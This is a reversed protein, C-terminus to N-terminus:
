DNVLVLDITQGFLSVSLNIVQWDGNRNVDILNVNGPNAWMNNVRVFQMANDGNPLTASVTLEDYPVTANVGDLRTWIRITGAQALSANPRSPSGGQGNNFMDLGFAPVPEVGFWDNILLVSVTQGYGSMTFYITEWPADKSVDFNLYYNQWGDNTWQRNRTILPLANNSDQDTATITLRMSVPTSEGSPMVLPWIRINGAMSPVEADTGNNFAHIGLYAVRQPLWVIGTAFPRNAVDSARNLFNNTVDLTTLMPNGSLDLATLYNWNVWLSELIPNGSVDLESLNNSGLDLWRLAPNNTVDIATLENNWARFEGLRYNNTLDIETINSGNVNVWRIIPSGSLNLEEILNGFAWVEDLTPHEDLILETMQNNVINVWRIWRNNSLDLSGINNSGVRVEEIILNSSLDLETLNSGYLNLWRLYPSNSVDIASVQNGPAWIENLFVNNSLDLSGGMNNNTFNLTHLATFHEIGALNTIGLNQVWLGVVRSVDDYFIRQPYPRGVRTRVANRFNLCVFDYTIDIPAAEGDLLAAFPMTIRRDGNLFLLNGQYIGNPTGYAFTMQVDFTNASTPAVALNVGAYNVNNFHVEPTWTGTGPNNITVTMTDTAAESVVGFSLSSMTHEEFQSITPFFTRNIPHVTTAYADSRLAMIPDVFGAGVSFVNNTHVSTEIDALPRATNMLRAKVEANRQGQPIDPFAQLVLAAIGAVSPAAMSTGSMAVYTNGPFASVIGVGPATIDPNIFYTTPVPGHSSFLSITDGFRPEDLGGATGAAVIIPLSGQGMVSLTYPRRNRGFNGAIVVVVTDDLAALDLATNIIHPGAAHATEWHISLNMIDSSEHAMEIARVLRDSWTGGGAAGLARYSRLNIEPALAVVTGAVHTGHGFDTEGPRERADNNNRIVCFGPTLGTYPDYWREFVPHDHQIGSDIVAVTVGYGTIGMENHIYYANFHALTERMFGEYIDGGGFGIVPEGFPIMEPAEIRFNPFVGFVEPLEAILEAMYAPARMFVGNFLQYNYSFVYPAFSGFPMPIRALQSMFTNHAALAQGEFYATDMQNFTRLHASDRESALRLAVAPPTVFQVIIEIIEDSDTIAYDGEFGLVGVSGGLTQTLATHELAAVRALHREYAERESRGYDHDYAENDRAYITDMATEGYVIISPPAIPFAMVLAIFIAILSRTNFYRKNM